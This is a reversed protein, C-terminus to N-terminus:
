VPCSRGIEIDYVSSGRERDTEEQVDVVLAGQDYHAFGKEKLMEVMGPIYKQADAEGKWLDFEVNLNKYTEKLDEVSVQM